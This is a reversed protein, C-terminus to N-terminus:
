ETLDNFTCSVIFDLRVIVWNCVTRIHMLTVIHNLIRLIICLMMSSTSGVGM